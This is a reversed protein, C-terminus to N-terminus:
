TVMEKSLAGLTNNFECMMDTISYVIGHHDGFNQLALTHGAIQTVTSRFPANNLLTISQFM